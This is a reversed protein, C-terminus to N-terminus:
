LLGLHRYMIFLLLMIFFLLFTLIYVDGPELFLVTRDGNDDRLILPYM